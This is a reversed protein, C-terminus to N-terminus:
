WSNPNPITWERTQYPLSKDFFYPHNISYKCHKFFVSADCISITKSFSLPTLNFPFTTPLHLYQFKATYDSFSRTPLLLKSDFPFVIITLGNFQGRLIYVASSTNYGPSWTYSILRILLFRDMALVAM